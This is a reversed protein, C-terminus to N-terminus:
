SRRCCFISLYMSVSSMPFADSFAEIVPCCQGEVSVIDRYTKSVKAKLNRADSLRPLHNELVDLVQLQKEMLYSANKMWEGREESVKDFGVVPFILFILSSSLKYRIQCFTVVFVSTNEDDM